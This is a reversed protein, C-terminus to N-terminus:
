ECLPLYREMLAFITEWTIYGKGILINLYEGNFSHYLGEPMIDSITEYELLGYTEIDQSMLEEDWTMTEVNVAFPNLLGEIGGPVSLMGNAYYCLAKYTVPSYVAVYEQKITVDVLVVEEGKETIFHCAVAHVIVRVHQFAEAIFM